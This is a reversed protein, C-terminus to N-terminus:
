LTFYHILDFIVRNLLPELVRGLTKLKNSLSIVLLLKPIPSLFNQAQSYYIKWISSKLHQGRYQENISFYDKAMCSLFFTLKQMSYIRNEFSCFKYCSSISTKFFSKGIFTRKHLLKLLM